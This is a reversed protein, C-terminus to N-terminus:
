QPRAGASGLTDPVEENVRTLDREPLDTRASLSDAAATPEAAPLLSGAAPRREPLMSTYAARHLVAFVIAAVAALAAVIGILKKIM